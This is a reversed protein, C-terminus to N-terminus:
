QVLVERERMQPVQPVLHKQCIFTTHTYCPSDHLAPYEDRSLVVCNENGGDPQGTAWERRSVPTKSLWEWAGESGVESAGVWYFRCDDEPYKDLLMARLTNVDSPQALDATLGQCFKRAESWTVRRYKNVYFCQSGVRSFPRPCKEDPRQQERLARTNNQIAQNLEDLLVTLTGTEPQVTAESVPVNVPNSKVNREPTLSENLESLVESLYQIAKITKEQLSNNETIIAPALFVGQLLGGVVVLTLLHMRM